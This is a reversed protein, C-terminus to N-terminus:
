TEDEHSFSNDNISYVSHHEGILDQYFGITKKWKMVAMAANLANLEAIQINQSYQDDDDGDTFSILQRDHIHSRKTETSTTTRIQGILTSEEEILVLGLGVDVFAIQHKELFDIIAPKVAGKDLCMFVFDMNALNDLNSEDLYEEHAVINKHMRSYMNSLYHVKPTLANLEERTPAGPSRFANHVLFTDKDYIHIETVPTKAVFDLVYSGTGGLGIIAIRQNRLKDSVKSIEARSSNTDPYHFVPDEDDSAPVRGTRATVTDDLVKAENELITIYRVMKEYYDPYGGIPKNSFMHDVIIGSALEKRGSSHKIPAIITGNSHCPEEGAFHVVHTSPKATKNGSLTLESVLTGYSIKKSSNVYPVGSILLYSNVIAIEYEEDRLKKLDPSHNILQHLM